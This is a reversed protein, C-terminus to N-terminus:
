IGESTSASSSPKGGKWYVLVGDAFIRCRLIEVGDDNNTGAPVHLVKQVICFRTNDTSEWQGGILFSVKCPSGRSPAAVILNRKDGDSVIVTIQNMSYKEVWLSVISCKNMAHALRGGWGLKNLSKLFPPWSVVETYKSDLSSYHGSLFTTEDGYFIPPHKFRM